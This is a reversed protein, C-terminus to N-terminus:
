IKQALKECESVIHSITESKKDCTRCLPSQDTEDINHKMYNTGIAREQAACLMAETEVKIYAKRLWSWTEREDTTKPMERVFQGYIRKNKWLKMKKRMWSGDKGEDLQKFEKKNVTNNYEITEAAKVGENLLEVSNRVYWGLNNEEIRICGECSILGRGGM